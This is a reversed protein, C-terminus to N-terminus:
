RKGKGETLLEKRKKKMLNNKLKKKKKENQTKERAFIYSACFQGKTCFPRRAIKHGQAFKAKRLKTCEHLKTRM